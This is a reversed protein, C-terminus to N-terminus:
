EISPCLNALLASVTTEETLETFSHVTMVNEQAPWTAWREVATRSVGPGVLVFALRVGSSRLKDAETSLIYASLPMGDTVVLVVPQARARGHHGLVDAAVALAEGTNTESPTWSIMALSGSFTAQDATLPQLVSASAGFQIAGMRALAPSGTSVDAEGFKTKTAVAEAFQQVATVGAAGMSGSVDVALVLDMASACQPPPTTRCPDGNCPAAQRREPDNDAPCGGSGVLPRLVHRFRVSHGGSCNKSCTSWATWDSLSCDQDCAHMNCLQEQMTEGTPVGGHEAHRLVTRHRTRTGGGCEQSCESWDQWRSMLGDVPCPKENCARTAALVPCLRNTTPAHIVRRTVNQVGGSGCPKSCPGSVWDTVECDGLFAGASGADALDRVLTKSSCMSTLADQLQQSCQDSNEAAERTLGEVEEHRMSRSSSLESQEAVANALAVGADDSQRQLDKIRLEYHGLSKRCSEAEAQMRVKLEDALDEVGGAFTAM